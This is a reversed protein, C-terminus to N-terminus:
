NMDNKNDDDVKGKEEVKDMKDHFTPPGFQPVGKNMDLDFCLCTLMAMVGTEFLGLFLSATLYTVFAVAIVPGAISSVEGTDKTINKMIFLLSFVNATVIGVKGLFIFVKAILNAFVFKMGHKLNMLFGKWASPFFSEGSVAIYCFASENLYDCIKEICNLLCLACKVVCSILANDGSAKEAKKALYYFVIKIFRIVAIIFSGICISGFHHFYACKFGYGVEAADSNEETDGRKHNFYYTSASVIIIFRSLYDILALLWLVGFFMFLAMYKVSKKWKISRGQPIVTSPEIDNLSIVCVMSGLWILFVIVQFVFHLNPVLIVRKTGAVFDASADIVDVALGLSKRACVICCLFVFAL